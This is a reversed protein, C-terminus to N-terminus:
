LSCTNWPLMSYVQKASLHTAPTTISSGHPIGTRINILVFKGRIQTLMYRNGNCTFKDGPRFQTNKTPSNLREILDSIRHTGDISDKLYVRKHMKEPILEVLNQVTPEEVVCEVLPTGTEVHVVFFLNNPSRV